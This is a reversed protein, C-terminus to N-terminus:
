GQKTGEFKGSAQPGSYKGDFKKGDIKMEVAYSDSNIMLKFTFTAGDLKPEVLPLQADPQSVGILSGSLKGADEKVVLTWASSRGAEDTSKCDWKGVVPNDAAVAVLGFLTVALLLAFTRIM